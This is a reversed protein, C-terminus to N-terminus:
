KRRFDDLKTKIEFLMSNNIRSSIRQDIDAIENLSLNGTLITPKMKYDCREDLINLITRRSFEKDKGEKSSFIDDIVLVSYNSYKEIIQLENNSYGDDYSARIELLLKREPIFCVPAPYIFENERIYGEEKYQQYMKENENQKERLDKKIYEKLMGAAIHSKGIGNQVSIISCILPNSFDWKYIRDLIPRYFEGEIDKLKKERYALPINSKKWVQMCFWDFLEINTSQNLKKYTTEEQM